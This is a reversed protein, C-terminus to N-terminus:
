GPAGPAAGAADGEAEAAPGSAGELAHVLLEKAATARAPAAGYSNALAAIARRVVREARGDSMAARREPVAAERGNVGPLSGLPAGCALPRRHRRHRGGRPISPPMVLSTVRSRAM